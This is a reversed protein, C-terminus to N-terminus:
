TRGTDRQDKVWQIDEKVSEKTKEPQPPAAEQVKRRGQLALVAAVVGYIVTVILASIWASMVLSLVLILFATFAGLAALGAVGAGGFMGAGVGAKKGKETLEARALALEQRVLTATDESLQKFLDKLAADRLDRESSSM